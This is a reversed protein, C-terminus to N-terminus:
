QHPSYAAACAHWRDFIAAHAPSPNLAGQMHLHSSPEGMGCWWVRGCTHCAESNGDCQRATACGQARASLVIVVTRGAPAGYSGAGGFVGLGRAGVCDRGLTRM